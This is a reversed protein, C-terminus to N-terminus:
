KRNKDTAAGMESERVPYAEKRGKKRRCQKKKKQKKQLHRYKLSSLVPAFYLFINLKHVQETVYLTYFIKVMLIRFKKKKEEDQKMQPPVHLSLCFFFGLFFPYILHKALKKLRFNGHIYKVVNVSLGHRSITMLVEGASKKWPLNTGICIIIMM